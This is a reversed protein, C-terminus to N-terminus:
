SPLISVGHSERVKHKRQAKRSDPKMRVVDCPTTIILKRPMVTPEGSVRNLFCFEIMGWTVLHQPTPSRLFESKRGLWGHIVFIAVWVDQPWVDFGERIWSRPIPHRGKPLTPQLNHLATSIVAPHFGREGWPGGSTYGGPLFPMNELHWSKTNSYVQRVTDDSLHCQFSLWDIYALLRLLGCLQNEMPIFPYCWGMEDAFMVMKKMGAEHAMKTNANKNGRVRDIVGAMYGPPFGYEADNIAPIGRGFSSAPM